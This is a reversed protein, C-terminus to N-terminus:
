PQAAPRRLHRTETRTRTRPMNQRRLDVLVLDDDELLVHRRAYTVADLRNNVGFCDYIRELHKHVTRPSIGLRRGIAQATAGRALAGLVEHQRTSLGTARARVAPDNLEKVIVVLEGYDLNSAITTTRFHLRGRWTQLACPEGGTLVPLVHCAIASWFLDHQDLLRKAERSLHDARGSKVMIVGGGAALSCSLKDLIQARERNVAALKLFPFLAAMAACESDDFNQDRNIGWGLLVGPRPRYGCMLSFPVGLPGLLNERLPHLRWAVPSVMDTVRVGAFEGVSAVYRLGPNETVLTSRSREDSLLIEPQEVVSVRAARRDVEIQGAVVGPVVKLLTQLLLQQAEDPAEAELLQLGLRQLKLLTAAELTHM